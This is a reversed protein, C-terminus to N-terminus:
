AGIRRLRVYVRRARRRDGKTLPGLDDCEYRTVRDLSRYPEPDASNPPAGGVYSYLNVDGAGMPPPRREHLPRPRCSDSGRGTRMAASRGRFHGSARLAVRRCGGLIAASWRLWSVPSWRWDEGITSSEAFRILLLVVAGGVFAGIAQVSHTTGVKLATQAALARHDM